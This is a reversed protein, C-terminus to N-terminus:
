FLNWNEVLRMLLTEKQPVFFVGSLILGIFAFADKLKQDWHSDLIPFTKYTRQESSFTSSTSILLKKMDNNRNQIQIKLRNYISSYVIIALNEYM